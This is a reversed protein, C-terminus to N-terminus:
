KVQVFVSVNFHSRKLNVVTPLPTMILVTSSAVVWLIFALTVATEKITAFVYM